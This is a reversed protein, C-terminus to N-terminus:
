REPEKSQPDPSLYGAFALGKTGGTNSVDNLEKNLFDFFTKYSRATADTQILAGVIIIPHVPKRKAPVHRQVLYPHQFCYLTVFSDGVSFTQFPIPENTFM